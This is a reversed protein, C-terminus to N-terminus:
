DPTGTYATYLKEEILRSGLLLNIRRKLAARRDNNRYVSRALEVFRSGFDGTRECERLDGEVRWISENTARLEITLADLDSRPAVARTLAARLVNLEMMINHTREPDSSHGAKIELITIKDILEGAAIETLIPRGVAPGVSRVEESLQGLAHSAAGLLLLLGADGPDGRLALRCLQAARAHDGAHYARWAEAAERSKQSM